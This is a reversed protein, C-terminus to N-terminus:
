VGAPVLIVRCSTLVFRHVWGVLTQIELLNRPAGISSAWSWQELCVAVSSSSNRKQFIDGEPRYELLIPTITKSGDGRLDPNKQRKRSLLQMVTGRAKGLSVQWWGPGAASSKWACEGRKLAFQFHM